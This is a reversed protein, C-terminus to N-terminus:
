TVDGVMGPQHVYDVEGGEAWASWATLDGRSILEDLTTVTLRLNHDMPDKGQDRYMFEAKSSLM